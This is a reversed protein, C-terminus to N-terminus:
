PLNKRPLLSQDLGVNANIKEKLKTSGRKRKACFMTMEIIGMVVGNACTKRGRMIRGFKWEGGMAQKVAIGCPSKPQCGKSKITEERIKCNKEKERGAWKEEALRDKGWNRFTLPPIERKKEKTKKQPNKQPPPHTPNKKKNKQQQHNPEKL